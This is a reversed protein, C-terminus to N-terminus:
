EALEELLSLVRSVTALQFRAKTDGAGVKITYADSPLDRFMEEDTYDDGIAVICDPSYVAEIESAAYGKHIEIPKIEIIKNGSFVGVADDNIINALERRLESARVYALETPVNRYHWVVAYDKEEILAGATRSVFKKLLPRM